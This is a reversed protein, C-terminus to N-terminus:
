FYNGKGAYAPESSPPTPGQEDHNSDESLAIPALKSAPPVFAKAAFIPRGSPIVLSSTPPVPQFSVQRLGLGAPLSYLDVCRIM